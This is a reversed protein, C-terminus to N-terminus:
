QAASATSATVADVNSKDRYGELALRLQGPTTAIPGTLLEPVNFATISSAYFEPSEQPLAFPQHMVGATDVYRFYVSSFKGNLRKSTYAIWRGNHSWGHWSETWRSASDITVIRFTHADILALRSGIKDIPFDGYEAITALIFRGDPSLRPQVISGGADDATLLTDLKGWTRAQPDFGLRMLDCRIRRYQSDPLQPASSFYLAKGDPSWAPWSEIRDKRSLDPATTVTNREADFLAIDGAGDFVARPEQGAAYYLMSFKNMSFAIFNFEPHWSTVGVKGTTFPTKTNVARLGRSTEASTSLFLLPTGYVKSRVEVIMENPDNNRYSHCNYCANDALNHVVTRETFNRLDRQYIGMFTWDQCVPIKRYAVYPDIEEAAVTDHITEFKQWVGKSRCYVDVAISRGRAADLLARWKKPPIVVSPTRSPVALTPAGEASMSVWYREGQEDISFNLPAINPPVVMGTAYPFLKPPRGVSQVDGAPKVSGCGALSMLTLMVGAASIIRV